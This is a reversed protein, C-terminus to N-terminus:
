GLLAALKKKAAAVKRAALILQRQLKLLNKIRGKLAPAKPIRLGRRRGPKRGRKLLLPPRGRGAKKAKKPAAKKASRPIGAVKTWKSLTVASVGFKKKAASRGGRGHEADFKEIFRLIAAKTRPNIKRPM